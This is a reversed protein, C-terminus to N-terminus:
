IPRPKEHEPVAEAATAAAAAEREQQVAILTAQSTELSTIRRQMRWRAARHFIWMPLFGALFSTLIIMPLPTNLVVNSWITVDIRFWNAYAFVALASVIIAWVITRVIQM